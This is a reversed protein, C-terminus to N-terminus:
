REPGSGERIRLERVVRAEATVGRKFPGMVFERAEQFTGFSAVHVLRDMYMRVERPCLIDCQELVRWVHWEDNETIAGALDDNVYIAKDKQRGCGGLTIMGCLRVRRYTESAAPSKLARVPGLSVEHSPRPVPARGKVAKRLNKEGGRREVTTRRRNVPGMRRPLGSRRELDQRWFGPMETRRDGLTRREGKEFATKM